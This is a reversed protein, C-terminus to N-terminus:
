REETRDVAGAGGEAPGLVMRWAGQEIAALEVASGAGTLRAEVNAFFVQGEAAFLRLPLRACEFLSAVRDRSRHEPRSPDFSQLTAALAKVYREESEKLREATAARQLHLRLDNESERLQGAIERRERVLEALGLEFRRQQRAALLLLLLTFVIVLTDRPGALAPDLWGLRDAVFHSLPFFLAWTLPPAAFADSLTPATEQRRRDELGFLGSAGALIMAAFPLLWFGDAFDGSELPLHHRKLWFAWLDTSLIGGFAASLCGYVARWQRSPTQWAAFAARAAIYLDMATYLLFYSYYTRYGGPNRLEPLVVLITFFAAVLVAVYWPPIRRGAAAAPSLDDPRGELAAVVFVYSLSYGLEVLVRIPDRTMWGLEFALNSLSVASWVGLGLALYVFYRRDAPAKLRWAALAAYLTALTLCLQPGYVFALANNAAPSAWPAAALALFALWLGAALSIAWKGGARAALQSFRHRAAAVAPPIM